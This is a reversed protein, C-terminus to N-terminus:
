AKSADFKRAFQFPRAPLFVIAEAIDDASERSLKPIEGFNVDRGPRYRYLYGM